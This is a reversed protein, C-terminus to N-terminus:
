EPQKPEPAPSNQSMPRPHPSGVPTAEFNTIQWAGSPLRTYVRTYRFKGHVPRGEITGDVDALSTVIATSGVLKVKVDELDLKGIALQHTRLRELEQMKTVVQGNMTIGVYDDALMRDMAPLNNDLQAARWEQEMREVQEKYLERRKPHPVPARGAFALTAAPLLSLVLLGAFWVSRNKGSCWTM